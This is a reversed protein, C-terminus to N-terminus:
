TETVQGGVAAVSSKGQEKSQEVRPGSVLLTWPAICSGTGPARSAQRGERRM